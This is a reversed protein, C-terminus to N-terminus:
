THLHTDMTCPRVVRRYLLYLSLVVKDALKILHESIDSRTRTSIKYTMGNKSEESSHYSTNNCLVFSIDMFGIVFTHGWKM